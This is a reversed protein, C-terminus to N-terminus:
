VRRLTSVAGGGASASYRRPGWLSAWRPSGLPPRRGVSRWVGPARERVGRQARLARESALAPACAGACRGRASEASLAPPLAVEATADWCATCRCKPWRPRSDEIWAGEQRGRGHYNRSERTGFSARCVSSEIRPRKPTMAPCDCFPSALEFYMSLTESTAWHWSVAFVHVSSFQIVYM